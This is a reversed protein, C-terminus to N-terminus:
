NELNKAKKSKLFENIWPQKNPQKKDIHGSATTM